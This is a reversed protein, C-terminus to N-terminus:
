RLGLRRPRDPGVLERASVTKAIKGDTRRILEWPLDEKVAKCSPTPSASRTTRTRARSPSTPRSDWDTDYTPFEISTFGQRAYQLIRNTYTDPIM